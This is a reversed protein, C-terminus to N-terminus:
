IFYVDANIKKYYDEAEIISNEFGIGAGEIYADLIQNKEKTKYYNILDIIDRALNSTSIFTKNKQLIYIDQELQEFLTKM